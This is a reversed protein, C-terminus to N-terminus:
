QSLTVDVLEGAALMLIDITNLSLREELKRLTIKMTVVSYLAIIHSCGRVARVITVTHETVLAVGNDQGIVLPSANSTRSCGSLLCAATVARHGEQQALCMQFYFM